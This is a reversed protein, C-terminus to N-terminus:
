RARLLRVLSMAERLLYRGGMACSLAGLVFFFEVLLDPTTLAWYSFILFGAGFVSAGVFSCFCEVRAQARDFFHESM